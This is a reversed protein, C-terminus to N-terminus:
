TLVSREFSRAATDLAQVHPIRLLDLLDLLPELLRHALLAKSTTRGTVRPMWNAKELM